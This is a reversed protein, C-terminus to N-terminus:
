SGRSKTRAAGAAAKAGAEGAAASARVLAGPDRESELALLRSALAEAGGPALCPGALLQFKTRVDEDTVFNGPEGKPVRVFESFTGRGTRVTIRGSMQEPYSAEADADHAVDVKECLALTAPDALHTRYHDWGMAGERLAVAVVFNGSFQGDVVNKPRKKHAQPEGILILGKKSVGVTVSEIEEPRIGHARRLGIAGDIAAHGWRCSPYPKIAISMTEYRSGLGAVAKEPMAHTTYGHFFGLRGEFARTAGVYGEQSLVAAVLGSKAAHGVQFRKTWAGNDLFQLTGSAESLCIGFANATAEGSLGLVNAAAATAGFAGATATPHFGQEYHAGPDLALAVRCAVEYGAVVGAILRRGDAGALEAAALAAPLVPASAHLIAAAHTDDFDLSHVLAGNILAAGAPGYTAADGFVAAAGRDLGLRACARILAPTSEAEHRARIAIGAADLIFLKARAAVEAPLAEFGLGAAYAALTGTVGIM